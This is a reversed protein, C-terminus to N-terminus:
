SRAPDRAGVPASKAAGYREYLQDAHAASNVLLNWLYTARSRDVYLDFVGALENGAPGNVYCHMLVSIRAFLTQACLAEAPRNLPIDLGCHKRLLWPAAEGEIRILALAESHDWCFFGAADHRARVHGLLEDPAMSQSVVLWEGPRLCLVAPDKGSCTGTALPLDRSKALSGTDGPLLRLRTAARKEIERVTLSALQFGAQDAGAQGLAHGLASRLARFQQKRESM